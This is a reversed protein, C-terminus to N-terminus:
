LVKLESKYLSKETNPGNQLAVQDWRRADQKLHPKGAASDRYMFVYRQAPGALPGHKYWRILGYTPFHESSMTQLGGPIINNTHIFLSFFTCTLVTFKEATPGCLCVSFSIFHFLFLFHCFSESVSGSSTPPCVCLSVFPLLLRSLHVHCKRIWGSLNQRSCAQGTPLQKLSQNSRWKLSWM